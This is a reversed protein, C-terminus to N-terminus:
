TVYIWFCDDLPTRSIEPFNLPFYRHWLRKKLLTASRQKETFKPSNKLVGQKYFLEMPQKTSLFRLIQRNLSVVNVLLKM